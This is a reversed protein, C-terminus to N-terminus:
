EAVTLVTVTGEKAKDSVATVTFKGDKKTSQVIALLKGRTAKRTSNTYPTHDNQRGNDLALLTGEGTVTVTVDGEFSNM